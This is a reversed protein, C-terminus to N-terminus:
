VYILTQGLIFIPACSYILVVVGYIRHGLKQAQSTQIAACWLVIIVAVIVVFCVYVSDNVIVLEHHVDASPFPMLKLMGTLTFLIVLLFTVIKKLMGM